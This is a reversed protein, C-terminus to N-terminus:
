RASATPLAPAPPRVDRAERVQRLLSLSPTGTSALRASIGQATRRVHDALRDLDFRPASPGTVSIALATARSPDVVPAAVCHIGLHFEGRDFAVGSRRVEDIEAVLRREDTITYRTYRRLGAEITARLVEPPSAALLAKGLATCYLPRRGGIRTAAINTNGCLKDLYLVETGARMALHVTEHTIEFLNREFRQTLDRLRVAEPVGAGLEFLRIGPRYNRGDRSVVGIACLQSLLRYATPKALNSREALAALSLSAGDSGFAELLRFARDLVSSGSERKSCRM